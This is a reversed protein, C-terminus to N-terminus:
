AKCIKDATGVYKVSGGGGGGGGCVCLRVCLYLIRVYYM